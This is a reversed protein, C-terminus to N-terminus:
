KYPWGEDSEVSIDQKGEFWVRRIKFSNRKLVKFNVEVAVSRHATRTVTEEITEQFLMVKDESDWVGTNPDDYSIEADFTVVAPREIIAKDAALSIIEINGDYEVETLEVSNVDGDQDDLYFGLNPFADKAKDFIEDDYRRIMKRIFASLNKNESTVADLYTPLDEFHYLPGKESCAAKVGVDRTIVAMSCRKRRCTHFSVLSYAKQFRL